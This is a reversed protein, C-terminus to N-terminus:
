RFLSASPGFKRIFKNRRKSSINQPRVLNTRSLFDKYELTLLQHTGEDFVIALDQGNKTMLHVIWQKQGEGILECFQEAVVRCKVNPNDFFGKLPFSSLAYPPIKLNRSLQVVLTLILKSEQESGNACQDTLHISDFFCKIQESSLLPYQGKPMQTRRRLKKMDHFFPSYVERLHKLEEQEEASLSSMRDTNM